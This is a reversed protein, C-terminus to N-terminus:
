ILLILYYRNVTVNAKTASLFVNMYILKNIIIFYVNRDDSGVMYKM